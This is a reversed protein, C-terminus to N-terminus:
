DPNFPKYGSKEFASLVLEECLCEAQAEQYLELFRVKDIHYGAGPRISQELIQKYTQTFSGFIGVDLPQLLHTSNSPLCLLIIKNEECFHIAKKTVHSAHGDLFLLRYCNEGNMWARSQPEFTEQFWLLGLENDTWGTESFTINTAHDKM